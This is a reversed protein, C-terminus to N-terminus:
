SATLAVSPGGTQLSATLAHWARVDLRKEALRFAAAAVNEPAGSRLGRFM